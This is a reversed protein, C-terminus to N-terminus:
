QEGKSSRRQQHEPKTKFLGLAYPFQILNELDEQSTIDDGNLILFSKGSELHPQTDWVAAGTGATKEHIVYSLKIRGFQEGLREKFQEKFPGIVLIAHDVALPLRELIHEIIPKGNVLLLPKATKKTLEGMRTGKGAAMIIAQM